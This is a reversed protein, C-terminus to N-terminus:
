TTRACFLMGIASGSSVGDLGTVSNEVKAVIITYIESGSVTITDGVKFETLGPATGVQIMVFDDPMYYPTPAFANLLPIGKIPRFYDVAGNTGDYDANRYYTVVDHDYFYNSTNINSCWKDGLHPDSSGDNRLYGYASDGTRTEFDINEDSPQNTGSRYGLMDMKVSISRASNQSGTSENYSVLHGHYLHDLDVGPSTVGWTAPPLSFTFFTELKDNIVQCFQIVAFKDDQPSQARWYKIRLKYNTPQSSYAYSGYYQYATDSTDIHSYSGGSHGLLGDFWGNQGAWGNTDAYQSPYNSNTGLCNLTEWYVGSMVGMKWPQSRDIWFGYYSDGWEKAADHRMKLIAYHGNDNKQFFQSAAGYTTTVLSCIGDGADTSTEDTNTGFVLDYDGPTTQLEAGIDAGPITFSAGATWGDTVNLIDIWAIKGRYTSNTGAGYRTIRLKLDKGAGGGGTTSGDGPVTVDWYPWWADAYTRYGPKIVITGKMASTNSSAYCYQVVKGGGGLPNSGLQNTNDVGGVQHAHGQILSAPKDYSEVDNGDESQIWRRTDWTFSTTGNGTIYGSTATPNMQLNGATGNAEILTKTADYSTGNCINLGTADVNFSLTDGMYTEITANSSAARPKWFKTTTSWGAVPAGTLTIPTGNNAETANQAVKITTADVRIVWYSTNLSLGGIANDNTGGSPIFVLETGTTLVDNHPVTITHDTTNVNTPQWTEQMYYGIAGNASVEFKRESRYNYYTLQGGGAHAFETSDPNAAGALGNRNVQPHESDTQGPWKCCVPVGSKATGGHMGLNSFVTELATFVDSSTWGTQDNNVNVTGATVAM